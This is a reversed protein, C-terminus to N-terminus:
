FSIVIRRSVSLEEGLESILKDSGFESEDGSVLRFNLQATQGLLSKIREPDKIGPLEVLIRKDGRQLISPEKTGLDDIRRRVIEISQKLAANNISLIGYKSFFINITNEKIEFDLEYARYQDIYPNLLNENKPNLFLPEFKKIQDKKLSFSIIKDNISFNQYILNNKKLFKKIPIVKDQLRENLLPNTNIELLLYSGGQLDLGLNVKKDIFIKDKNQFNLLVFFSVSFFILYIFLVKIKTFNLM